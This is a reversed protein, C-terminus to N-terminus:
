PVAGSGRRGRAVLKAAVRAGAGVCEKRCNGLVEGTRGGCLGGGSTGTFVPRGSAVCAVNGPCSRTEAPEAGVGEHRMDAPNKYLQRSARNVDMVPGHCESRRSIEGFRPGRRSCGPGATTPGPGLPMRERAVLGSRSGTSISAREKGRPLVCYRRGDRERVERGRGEILKNNQTQGHGDGLLAQVSSRTPGGSNSRLVRSRKREIGLTGVIKGLRGEACRTQGAASGRQDPSLLRDKHVGAPRFIRQRQLFRQVKGGVLGSNM